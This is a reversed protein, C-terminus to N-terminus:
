CMPASSFVCIFLLIFPLTLFKIFPIRIHEDKWYINTSCGRHAPDQTLDQPCLWSGFNSGEHLEHDAALPGPGM